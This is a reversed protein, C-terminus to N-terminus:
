SKQFNEFIKLFALMTILDNKPMIDYGSLIFKIRARNFLSKHRKDTDNPRDQSSSNSLFTTRADGDQKNHEDSTSDSRQVLMNLVDFDLLPDACVSENSSSPVSSVM